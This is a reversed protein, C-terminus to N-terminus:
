SGPDQEPAGASVANFCKLVQAKLDAALFPKELFEVTFGPFSQLREKLGPIACAQASAVLIPFKVPRRYLRHMMEEVQMGPHRYDTILLDPASRSIERWAQDGDASRVVVFDRFYFQLILEMAERLCPEDDLLHIRAPRRSSLSVFEPRTEKPHSEPKGTDESPSEHRNKENM